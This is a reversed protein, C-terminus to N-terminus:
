DFEVHVHNTGLSKNAGSLADILVGIAGFFFVNGLFENATPGVFKSELDITKSQNKYSVVATLDQTNDFRMGCPAFCNQGNSLSVVAGTPNSTFQVYEGDPKFGTACGQLAFIGVAGLIWAKM